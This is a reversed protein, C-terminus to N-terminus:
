VSMTARACQVFETMLVAPDASIVPVVTSGALIIFQADGDARCPDVRLTELPVGAALLWRSGTVDYVAMPPM